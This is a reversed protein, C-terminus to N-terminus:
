IIKHLMNEKIHQMFYHFKEKTWGGNGTDEKHRISCNTTNFEICILCINIKVYGILTNIRELSIKWNVEEGFKLPIGSYACLGKQKKFLEVLFEYDIDLNTDHKDHKRNKRTKTSSKASSLLKQLTGRHTERNQKM